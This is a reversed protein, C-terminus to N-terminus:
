GVLAVSLRRAIKQTTGQLSSSVFQVGSRIQSSFGEAQKPQWLKTVNVKPIM